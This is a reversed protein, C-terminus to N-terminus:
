EDEVPDDPKANDRDQEQEQEKEAALADTDSARDTDAERVVEAEPEREDRAARRDGLEEATPVHLERHVKLAM